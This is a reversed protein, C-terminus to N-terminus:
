GFWTLEQFCSAYAANTSANAFFRPRFARSFPAPSCAIYSCISRSCISNFPSFFLEFRVQSPSFPCSRAVPGFGLVRRWSLACTTYGYKSHSATFSRTFWAPLRPATRPRHVWGPHKSEAILALTCAHRKEELLPAAFVLLPDAGPRGCKPGSVPLGAGAVDSTGYVWARQGRTVQM